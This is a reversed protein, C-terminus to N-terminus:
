TFSGAPRSPSLIHCKRSRKDVLKHGSVWNFIHYALIYAQTATARIQETKAGEMPFLSGGKGNSGILSHIIAEAAM